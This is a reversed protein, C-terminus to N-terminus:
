LYEAVGRFTPRHEKCPGFEAIAERHLKTGYGKHKGFSYQPYESDMNVLLRDRTVKAVISAAAIPTVRLDGKVFTYQSYEEGLGKIKFNGDVLVTAKDINLNKVARGMALFTANLINYKSIEEVTAFGIGYSHDRVIQAYFKERKSESLTKSDTFEKYAKKPNIIVAAAYVPGALCGRGVEDVGVIPARFKQWDVKKFEAKQKQKKL